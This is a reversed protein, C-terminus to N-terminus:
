SFEGPIYDWTGEGHGVCYPGIKHRLLGNPGRESENRRHFDQESSYFGNWWSPNEWDTPRERITVIDLMQAPSIFENYENVITSGKANWAMEWDSLTNIDHNPLVQMSFCWGGSSKGIHLKEKGRKCTPCCNVHLYYNTGM